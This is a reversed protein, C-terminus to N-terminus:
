QCSWWTEEPPTIKFWFKQHKTVTFRCRQNRFILSFKYGTKKNFHDIDTLLIVWKLSMKVCVDSCDSKALAAHFICCWAKTSQWLSDFGRSTKGAVTGNKAWLWCANVLIFNWNSNLFIRFSFGSLFSWATIENFNLLFRFQYERHIM